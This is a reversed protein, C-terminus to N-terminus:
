GEAPRAAGSVLKPRANLAQECMLREIRYLGRLQGEDLVEHWVRGAGSTTYSAILSTRKKDNLFADSQARTAWGPM